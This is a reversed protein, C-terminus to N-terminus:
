HGTFLMDPSREVATFVPKHVETCLLCNYQVHTHIYVYLVHAPSLQIAQTGRVHWFSCQLLATCASCIARHDPTLHLLGTQKRYNKTQAQKNTGRSTVAQMTSQTKTEIDTSTKGSFLINKRHQESRQLVSICYNTM